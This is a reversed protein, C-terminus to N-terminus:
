SRSGPLPTLLLHLFDIIVQIKDEYNHAWHSNHQLKRASYGLTWTLRSAETIVVTM